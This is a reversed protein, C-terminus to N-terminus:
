RKGMKFIRLQRRTRCYESGHLIRYGIITNFNNEHAYDYKTQVIRTNESPCYETKLHIEISM